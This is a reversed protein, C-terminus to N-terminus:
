ETGDVSAFRNCLEFFDDASNSAAIILELQRRDEVQKEGCCSCTIYADIIEDDSIVQLMQRYHQMGKNSLHLQGLKDNTMAKQRERLQSALHSKEM